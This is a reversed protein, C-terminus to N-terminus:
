SAASPPADDRPRFTGGICLTSAFHRQFYVADFGRPDVATGDEVDLYSGPGTGEAVLLLLRADFTRAYRLFGEAKLDVLAQLDGGDLRAVWGPGPSARWEFALRDHESGDPIYSATLHIPPMKDADIRTSDFAPAASFPLARLWRLANDLALAESRAVEDARL